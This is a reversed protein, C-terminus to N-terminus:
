QGQYGKKNDLQNLNSIVHGIAGYDMYWIPDVVTALSVIFDKAMENTIVNSGVREHVSNM